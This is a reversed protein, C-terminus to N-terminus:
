AARRGTAARARDQGSRSAAVVRRLRVVAPALRWVEGFGDLPDPAEPVPMALLEQVHARSRNMKRSVAPLPMTRALEIARRRERDREVDEYDLREHRPTVIHTVALGSDRLRALAERAEEEGVGAGAAIASMPRWVERLEAFVRQPVPPASGASRRACVGSGPSGHNETTPQANHIDPMEPTTTRTANQPPNPTRTRTM